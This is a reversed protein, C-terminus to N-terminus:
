FRGKERPNSSFNKIATSSTEFTEELNVLSDNVSVIETKIEKIKNETRIHQKKKSSTKKGSSSESSSDSYSSRPPPLNYLTTEEEKEEESQSDNEVKKELDKIFDKIEGFTVRSM